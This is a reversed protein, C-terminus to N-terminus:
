PLLLYDTKIREIATKNSTNITAKAANSKGCDKQNKLSQLNQLQDFRSLVSPAHHWFKRKFIEGAGIFIRPQDLLYSKM